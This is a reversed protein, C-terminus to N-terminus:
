RFPSSSTTTDVTEFELEFADVEEFKKRIAALKESHEIASTEAAGEENRNAEDNEKDSSIRRSYTRSVRHATKGPATKKGRTSKKIARPSAPKATGPRNRNRRDPMQLEDQDSDVPEVNDSSTLDFEDHEHLRARRRPLLDTLQATSISPQSKKKANRRTKM